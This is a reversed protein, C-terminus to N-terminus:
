AIVVPQAHPEPLSSFATDFALKGQSATNFSM